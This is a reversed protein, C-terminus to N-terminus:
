NNLCSRLVHLDIEVEITVLNLRALEDDMIYRWIVLDGVNKGLWKRVLEEKAKAGKEKDSRGCEFQPAYFIM